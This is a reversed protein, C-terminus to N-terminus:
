SMWRTHGILGEQAKQNIDKYFQYWPNTQLVKKFEDQNKLPIPTTIQLVEHVAVRGKFGSFYCSDCGSAQVGQSATYSACKPCVKPSLFQSVVGKLSHGLLFPDLDFSQLRLLTSECNATHLTSIVLHGTYAAELAIKATEADRIEGIMIIDPDQRLVARLGSAFTYGATPNIQSQRIGKIVNEIPDELTIISKTKDKKLHNLMTYLTTTKGSGTPGTVLILGHTHSLLQTLMTEAQETFGIDKLQDNTHFTNFIRLVFDEGYASPLSSIRIDVAQGNYHHRIRGDQPHNVKSIDLEGHFKILAQLEREEQGSLTKQTMLKGDIRYMLRTDQDQKYIHIDSAGSDMAHNILHHLPTLQSLPTDPHAESLVASLEAHPVLFVIAQRNLKQSLTDIHPNFPNDVALGWQQADCYVPFCRYAIADERSVHTWVTPDQTLQSAPTCIFTTHNQCTNLILDEPVNFRNKLV